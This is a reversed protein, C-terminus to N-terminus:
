KAIIRKCMEVAKLDVAKKCADIALTDAPNNEKIVKVNIKHQKMYGFIQKWLYSNQVPTGAKTIWGTKIWRFCSSINNAIFESSGYITVDCSEKLQSLGHIIAQLSLQNETSPSTISKDFEKSHEGYKLVVGFGCVYNEKDYKSSFYLNITKM